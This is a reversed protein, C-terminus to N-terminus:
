QQQLCVVSFNMLDFLSGMYKYIWVQQEHHYDSSCAWSVVFSSRLKKGSIADNMEMSKPSFPLKM